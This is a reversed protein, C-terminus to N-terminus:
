KPEMFYFSQILDILKIANLNRASVFPPQKFLQWYFELFVVFIQVAYVKPM